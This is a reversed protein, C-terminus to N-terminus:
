SGIVKTNTAPHTALYAQPFLYIKFPSPNRPIVTRRCKPSECGKPPPNSDPSSNGRRRLGPWGFAIRPYTTPERRVLAAVKRPPQPARTRGQLPRHLRAPSPTARLVILRPIASSFALGGGVPRTRRTPPPRLFFRSLVGGEDVIQLIDHIRRRAAIRHTRQQPYGAAQLMHSFSESSNAVRKRGKHDAPCQLREPITQLGIALGVLASFM